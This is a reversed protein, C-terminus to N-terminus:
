PMVVRRRTLFGVVAAFIASGIISWILPFTEGEITIPFLEPLGFQRAVWMGLLAGIFGVISSIVCGGLSYGAIAQGLMGAIAAVVALIIFGVLTM